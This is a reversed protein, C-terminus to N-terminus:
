FDPERGEEFAALGELVEDSFNFDTVRRRELELGEEGGVERAVRMLNKTLAAAKPSKTALEGELAALEDEFDEPPFTRSVIGWEEAQEGSLHRGTFMLDNARHKTTAQVIRQTGGGGAALGYNAHQDGIRAETSAVALDCALLLEIGGALAYGEVAALTPVSLSELRATVDHIATLFEAMKEREDNKIYANVKELDAGASFVGDAGRVTLLKVDAAEIEDLATQWERLLETDIANMSEPRNLTTRAVDDGISYELKPTM